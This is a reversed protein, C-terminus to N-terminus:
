KSYQQMLKKHSKKIDACKMTMQVSDRYGLASAMIRLYEAAREGESPKWLSDTVQIIKCEGVQMGLNYADAPNAPLGSDAAYVAPTLLILILTLLKTM